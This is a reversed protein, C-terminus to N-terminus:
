PREGVATLAQKARAQVSSDPDEEARRLADLVTPVKHVSAASELAKVALHRALLDDSKLLPIIDEALPAALRPITDVTAVTIVAMRPWEDRLAHQYVHLALSDPAAMSTFAQLAELRVIVVPDATALRAIDQDFAAAAMPKGRALAAIADAGGARIDHDSDNLMRRLAHDAAQSVAATSSALSRALAIAAALRVTQHEDSTMAILSPIAENARGSRQVVDGLAGALAIHVSSDAETRLADLLHGVTEPHDPAAEAVIRAAQARTEPSRSNLAAYWDAIPHGEYEPEGHCGFLLFM